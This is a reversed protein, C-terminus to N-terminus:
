LNSLESELNDIERLAEDKYKLLVDKIDEIKIVVYYFDIIQPISSRSLLEEIEKLYAKKCEIKCAIEQGKKIQDRTM